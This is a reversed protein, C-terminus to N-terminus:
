IIPVFHKKHLDFYVDINVNRVTNANIDVTLHVCNDVTLHVCYCTDFDPRALFNPCVQIINQCLM